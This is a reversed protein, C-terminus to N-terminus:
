GDIVIRVLKRKLPENAVHSLLHKVKSRKVAAFSEKYTVEVLGLDGKQLGGKQSLYGVIDGKSIKDRKGVNLELTVWQTKDPFPLDTSINEIIPQETIYSPLTEDGSLIMYTTGTANMRATRGNRHVFSAETTPLHYHIIYKIEPIDLGRSALDTTILLHFSGNRFKMLAVEREEQEMGGHYMKVQCKKKYLFDMVREVADRHNCFILTPENGIYKILHLLTDLKDAVPSEVIKMTIRPQILADAFEVCCPDTMKVFDPITALKTASICIRKKLKKLKDVIATMDDIFGFELSKDFEDLVLASIQSYDFRENDMHSAIRGPTGVLISPELAFEEKEVDIPHGGYCCMMRVDTGMAKHVDRIQHALERSPVIILTQVKGSHSSAIKTVPLLYALTKGSGTPAIIMTNRHTYIADIAETQMPTLADINLNKLSNKIM